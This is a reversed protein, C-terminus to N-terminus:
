NRAVSIPSHATSGRTSSDGTAPVITPDKM